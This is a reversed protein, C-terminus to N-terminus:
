QREGTNCYRGTFQLSQIIEDDHLMVKLDRLEIVPAKEFMSIWVESDYKFISTFEDLTVYWTQKDNRLIVYHVAIGRCFFFQIKKVVVSYVFMYVRLFTLFDFKEVDVEYLDQLIRPYDYRVNEENNLYQIKKEKISM